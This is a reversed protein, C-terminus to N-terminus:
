PTVLFGEHRAYWKQCHADYASRGGGTIGAYAGTGRMVKWTGFAVGCSGPSGGNRWEQQTRFLLTGRKGRLTISSCDVENKMGDRVWTRGPCSGQPADIITGSDRELVGAVPILVFTSAHFKITIEVRQRTAAPGAAAVSTLAVLAALAVLMLLPVRM